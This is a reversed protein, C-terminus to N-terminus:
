GSDQPEVVAHDPPAITTPKYTLFPRRSASRLQALQGLIQPDETLDMAHRALSLELLERVHDARDRARLRRYHLIAVVSFAIVAVPSAALLSQLVM